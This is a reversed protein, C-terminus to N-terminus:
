KEQKYREKLWKDFEEDSMPEDSEDCKTVCSEAERIDSIIKWLVDQRENPPTTLVMNEMEKYADPEVQKKLWELQEMIEPPLTIFKPM